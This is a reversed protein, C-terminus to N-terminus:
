RNGTYKNKEECIRRLELAYEEVLDFLCSVPVSMEELERKIAAASHQMFPLAFLNKLYGRVKFYRAVANPDDTKSKGRADGEFACVRAGDWEGKECASLVRHLSEIDEALYRSKSPSCIAGSAEIQEFVPLVERVRSAIYDCCFSTFYEPSSYLEKKTKLWETRFPVSALRNYIYKIDGGIKENRAVAQQLESCFFTYYSAIESQLYLPLIQLFRSSPYALSVWCPHGKGNFDTAKSARM